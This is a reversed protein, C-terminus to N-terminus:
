GDRLESTVAAKEQTAAPWGRSLCRNRGAWLVGHGALSTVM